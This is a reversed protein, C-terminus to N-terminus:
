GLSCLQILFPISDQGMEQTSQGLFIDKVVKKKKNKPMPWAYGWGQPTVLSRFACSSVGVIHETSPWPNHSGCLPSLMPCPGSPHM